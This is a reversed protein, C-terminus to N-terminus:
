RGGTRGNTRAPEQAGESNWGRETKGVGDVTPREDKGAEGLSSLKWLVGGLRTCERRVGCIPLTTVLRGFALLM